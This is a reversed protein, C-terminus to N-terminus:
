EKRGCWFLPIVLPLFLVFPLGSCAALLAMVGGLVLLLLVTRNNVIAEWRGNEAHRVVSM